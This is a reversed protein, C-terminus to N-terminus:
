RTSSPVVSAFSRSSTDAHPFYIFVLSRVEGEHAESFHIDPERHIAPCESQFQSMLPTYPSNRLKLWDVVWSPGFLDDDEDRTVCSWLEFVSGSTTEIRGDLFMHSLERIVDDYSKSYNIFEEGIDSALGVLAFIKDRSDTADFYRTSLLFWAIYSLGYDRSTKIVWLRGACMM